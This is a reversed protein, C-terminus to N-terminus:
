QRIWRLLQPLNPAKGQMLLGVRFIRGAAWVVTLTLVVLVAVSLLVQWLPPGPPLAIRLLMAFPTATPFFSLAVAIPSEPARIILFSAFYAGIILMMAPQLMSQADKLDSCVSSLAQFIAGFLCTACLLFVLFWGILAPDILDPRGEVLAAYAGGALYVFALLVSVAVVGLLKGMLLQFATVSGLLVESIKSMKEEIITNILHQATSMVAMFMLVTFFLPVGVRELADVERGPSVSGDARRAALGYTTVKTPASLTAILTADIGARALRRRTIEENIVTSLWNALAAYATNQSYYKIGETASPDLVSSPIEVFAFLTKAKVRASLDADVDSTTRAAPDIRIPLFHPGSRAPGDGVDHNHAAAAAAIADYLDGTGDVVAFPRDARDITAGAYRFIGLLATMLAPVIFLSIIFFRTRVLTVFENEAITLIRRM